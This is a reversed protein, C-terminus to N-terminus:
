APVALARRDALARMGAEMSSKAELSVPREGMYTDFLARSLVHSSFRKCESQRPFTVALGDALWEFVVEDAAPLCLLVSM